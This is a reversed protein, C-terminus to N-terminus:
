TEILRGRLVTATRVDEVNFLNLDARQGQCIRAVDLGTMAAPDCTASLPATAIDSGTFHQLNALARHMTLVSGALVGNHRCTGNQVDVKMTGLSYRGDPMGMGSMGDTHRVKAVFGCGYPKPAQMFETM